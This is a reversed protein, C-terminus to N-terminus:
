RSEGDALAAALRARYEEIRRLKLEEYGRILDPLEAIEVAAPLREATLAGYVQAMAALFEGPLVAETQRM